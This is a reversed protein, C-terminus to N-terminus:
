LSVSVQAKRQAAISPWVGDVLLGAAAGTGPLIADWACAPLYSSAPAPSALDHLMRQLPGPMAYIRASDGIMVEVKCEQLVEFTNAVIDYKATDGSLRIQLM